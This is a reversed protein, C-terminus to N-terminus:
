SHLTVRPEAWEIKPLNEIFRHRSRQLM